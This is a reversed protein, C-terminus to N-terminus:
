ALITPGVIRVITRAVASRLISNAHCIALNAVLCPWRFAKPLRRPTIKLEGFGELSASGAQAMRSYDMCTPTVPVYLLHTGPDYATSMWNRNGITSPCVLKPTGVVPTLAPDYRKRGSKPDIATVLNQLGLDRSWLYDGTKADLADFIGLKGGTVVIRRGGLTALTREFSWDLDWVDGPAHQYHWVLKGSDPNIALTTNTFLADTSTGKRGQPDLLTSISYTQGVGFYVLNLDADYSGTVWVSGGYRKNWPAGNWSDGGPEGPRAITRFRWAEEGTAADLAVIYCGGGYEGGQCGAVGQIVKGRVVLPAATLQLQEAPKGIVHDWRVRGTRADLAIVHNDITPVFLADGYLAMGRTQSNPVRTTTAPRVFKWISEGNRADLAQVTGNSNIFMVGDHVIPAIANTGSALSLSWALGLTGVNARDIQKLPSYGHSA